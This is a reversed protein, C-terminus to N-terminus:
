VPTIPKKGKLVAAVNRAALLAMNTRAEKTASGIHPLLLVNDLKFLDPNLNPENEFVDFGAASIKKQKLLEILEKEDVIEGRATNILVADPRIL